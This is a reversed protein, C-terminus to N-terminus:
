APLHAALPELNAAGPQRRGAEMEHVLSVIASNMPTTLGLPSALRVIEGNLSDIETRRGKIVDQALSPRGPMGVRQAQEPTLRREGRSAALCALLAQTDTETRAAALDHAPIGNVSELAIGLGLAVRAAEGGTTLTIRDLLDRQEPTLESTGMLGALANGMCNWVMKAWRVGWINTTAESHGIVQLAEVIERVRPTIVGSLEGISFAHITTPDTRVVHGPEYIGASITPVCGVTRRYGVIQAVEEDVLANMAPLLCGGSALRPAILHACWQVDYAKVSLFVIDFAEAVQGVEGVHLARAPVTFRGNADSITLGDRRITEVHLPWPDILTVCHGARILYAGIAGGIAGAGLVAINGQM